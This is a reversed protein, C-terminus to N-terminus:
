NLNDLRCYLYKWYVRVKKQGTAENGALDFVQYCFKGQEFLSVATGLYEETTYNCAAQITTSSYLFYDDCGSDEDTCGVLADTQEDM